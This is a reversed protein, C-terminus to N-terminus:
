TETTGTRVLCATSAAAEMFYQLTPTTLKQAKNIRTSQTAQALAARVSGGHWVTPPYRITIGNFFGKRLPEGWEFWDGVQISSWVVFVKATSALEASTPVHVVYFEMLPERLNRLCVLNIEAKRM